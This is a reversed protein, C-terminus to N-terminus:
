RVENMKILKSLSARLRQEKTPQVPVRRGGVIANKPLPGKPIASGGTFVSRAM